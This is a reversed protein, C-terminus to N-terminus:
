LIEAPANTVTGTDIVEFTDWTLTHYFGIMEISVRYDGGGGSVTSVPPFALQALRADRMAEGFGTANAYMEGADFHKMKSGYQDISSDNTVEATQTMDLAGSTWQVIVRNAM